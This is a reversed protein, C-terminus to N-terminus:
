SELVKEKRVPLMFIFPIAALLIAACFYFASALNFRDGIVGVLVVSVANVGFNFFMYFGNALARNEPFYEQVAAQIVPNFSISSFGLLLLIPLRLWGSVSVFLFLLTSSTLVSAVMVAKRGLRDSITGGLLAGAVGALQMISLSAGAFWLSSGQETLFTPLYLPLGLSIFSRAILIFFTPIMVPMMRRATRSFDVKQGHNAPRYPVDRLRFFLIFSVLFGFIMIWPLGSLTLAGVATVALIPALTRGVEGGVMWLSMGKGLRNGSLAGAMVPAMAHFLASSFGAVLLLISLISFSPAMGILSFMAGTISPALVVMWRLDRRDAIYGLIPQILSPLQTCSSLFGAQTKTLALKEILLPLLPSLFGGYGDHVAHAGSITLVPSTQFEGTRSQSTPEIFDTM